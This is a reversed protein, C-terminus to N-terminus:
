KRLVKTSYSQEGITLVVTYLGSSYTSLDIMLNGVSWAFASSPVADIRGDIHVIDVRTPFSQLAAGKISVTGVSPNPVVSLQDSKSVIEMTTTFKTVPALIQKWTKQMDVSRYIAGDNDFRYFTDGARQIPPAQAQLNPVALVFVTIAFTLRLLTKM